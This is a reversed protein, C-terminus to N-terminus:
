LHGQREQARKEAECLLADRRQSTGEASPFQDSCARSSVPSFLSLPGAGAVQRTNGLGPDAGPRSERDHKM